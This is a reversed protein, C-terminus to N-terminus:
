VVKSTTAQRIADIRARNRCYAPPAQVTGEAAMDLALADLWTRCARSSRCSRCRRLMEAWERSGLAEAEFASVADAGTNKLMRRMLMHHATPDGLPKM